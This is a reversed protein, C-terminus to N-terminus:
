SHLWGLIGCSPFPKPLHVLSIHIPVLNDRRCFGPSSPNPHCAGLGVESPEMGALLVFVGLLVDEFGLSDSAGFCVFTQGLSVVQYNGFVFLSLLPFCFHFSHIRYDLNSRWSQTLNLSLHILAIDIHVM